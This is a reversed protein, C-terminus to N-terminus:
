CVRGARLAEPPRYLDDLWRAAAVRTAETAKLRKAEGDSAFAVGPTKADYRAAETMAARDAESCAVGFHPLITAFLAEPLERYNVLLGGSERYQQVVPEIIRALVRAYFDEAGGPGYSRDLGYLKAGIGDPLMQAGPIRLNSVLVEVPDRYLFM